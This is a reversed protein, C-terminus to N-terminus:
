HRHGFLRGYQHSHGLVSATTMDGTHRWDPDLENAETACVYDNAPTDYYTRGPGYAAVRTRKSEHLVADGPCHAQAEGYTDFRPALVGYAALPPHAVFMGRAISDEPLSRRMFAGFGLIAVIVALGGITRYM